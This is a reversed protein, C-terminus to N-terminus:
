LKEQATAPRGQGRSRRWHRILGYFIYGLCICLLTAEKYLIVLGIVVLVLVFTRVRTQTQMDVKKSSPYRVTSMMLIAVLLM